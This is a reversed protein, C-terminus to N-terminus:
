NSVTISTLMDFGTGFIVGICICILLIWKRNCKFKELLYLSLLAYITSLLYWLIWSNYHEGILILGRFYLCVDYLFGHGDNVYELVALPLYVLSWILYLRVTKDLRKKIVDAKEEIGAKGILFGSSIFFFPVALKIFGAYLDMIIVNSCHILPQTHIAVVTIAM